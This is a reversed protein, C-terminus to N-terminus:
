RRYNPRQTEQGFQEFRFPRKTQRPEFATPSVPRTAFAPPLATVRGEWPRVLRVDPFIEYTSSRTGLQVQAPRSPPPIEQAAIWAQRRAAPVPLGFWELDLYAQRAAPSARKWEARWADPAWETELVGYTLSLHVSWTEPRVDFARKPTCDPGQVSLTRHIGASVVLSDAEGRRSREELQQLSTKASSPLGQGCTAHWWPLHPTLALTVSTLITEPPLHRWVPLQRRLRWALTLQVPLSGLWVLSPWAPGHAGDIGVAWFATLLGVVVSCCIGVLWGILRALAVGQRRNSAFVCGLTFAVAALVGFLSNPACFWALLLVALGCGGAILTRLPLAM